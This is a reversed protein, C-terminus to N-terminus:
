FSGRAATKWRTALLMAAVAFLGFAALANMYSISCYAAETPPAARRGLGSRKPRNSENLM